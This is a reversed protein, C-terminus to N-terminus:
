SECCRVFDVNCMKLYNHHRLYLRLYLRSSLMLNQLFCDNFILCLIENLSQRIRSIDGINFRSVM